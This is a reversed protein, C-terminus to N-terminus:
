YWGGDIDTFDIDMKRIASSPTEPPGSLFLPGTMRDGAIAVARDWRGDIRGWMLNNIPAEPVWQPDWYDSDPSVLQWLQATTLADNTNARTTYTSM